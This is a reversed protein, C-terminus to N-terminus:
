YIAMLVSQYTVFIAIIETWLGLQHFVNRRFLSNNIVSDVYL